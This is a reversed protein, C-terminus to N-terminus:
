PAAFEAPLTEGREKAAARTTVYVAEGTGGEAPRVVYVLKGDSNANLMIKQLIEKAPKDQESLGFSKNKTIGEIQLDKGLIIVPVGIEEGVLQLAKELTNRDFSVTIKRDLREAVTEGSDQKPPTAPTAPAAAAAAAVVPAGGARSNEFLALHSALALNHAAVLPLYTRLVVQRGDTGVVTHRALEEVMRPFGFLVDYSYNSLALSRIYDSARQPLLDVRERYDQAVKPLPRNTEATIRVECYFDRDTVHASVLLAPPLDLSSLDVTRQKDGRAPAAANEAVPEGPGHGSLFWDMPRRVRLANGPFWDDGGVLIVGPEILVTLVRDTDSTALLVEMERRMPPPNGAAPIVDEVIVSAPGVVLVRGEGAAPLYYAQDGKRFYETEEHREAAPQGWAALLDEQVLAARTRVVMMCQPLREPGAVLGVILQEIGGLPVGTEAPVRETLWSALAGGIRPDLLREGEPSALLDAPRLVVVVSAGPALYALNLPRGHTPSAWMVGSIAVVTEAGDITATTRDPTGTDPPVTDRPFTGPAVPGAAGTGDGAVTSNDGEVRPAPQGTGPEAPAAPIAAILPPNRGTRAGSFFYILAGGIVLLATASVGIGLLVRRRQPRPAPTRAAVSDPRPSSHDDVIVAVAASPDFGDGAPAPNTQNHTALWHDLTTRAAPVTADSMGQLVDGAGTCTALAASLQMADAFRANPKKALMRVVIAALEPSVTANFQEVPRPDESRHRTRRQTGEGDPFPVQGTLMQYLTCGFSYIDGALTPPAGAALEPPWYDIEAPAFETASLKEPRANLPVGVLRAAAGPTLWIKDPRVAGHPRGPQHWRELGESIQRAVLLAESPSLPADKAMRARLSEGALDEVVYFKYATGDVLTHCHVLFPSHRSLAAAETTQRVLAQMLAAHATTPGSLFKLGVSVGTPRHVARFLETLEEAEMREAVIYEGFMFPGARGALLIKAQYRTLVRQAVLWEPLPGLGPQAANQKAKAYADALRRCQAEDYLGSSVVLRWFEQLTVGMASEAPIVVM